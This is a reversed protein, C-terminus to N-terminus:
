VGIAAILRRRPGVGVDGVELRRGRTHTHARTVQRRPTLRHGLERATAQFVEGSVQVGQTSCQVPCGATHNDAGRHRFLLAVAISHAAM